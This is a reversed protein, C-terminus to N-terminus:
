PTPLLDRSARAPLGSGSLDVAGAFGNLPSVDAAYSASGGATITQSAPAASITFDPAPTGLTFNCTTLSGPNSVNVDLGWWDLATVANQETRFAFNTGVTQETGGAPTVYISYTHAPVNIVLRFHYRVGGSFPITSLAAYAGGNRADIAGSPNFRTLTAFGAYATQAGQSLAVVANLPSASPTADYEVTFTGTQAASLATNHWGDGASGTVCSTNVVLTVTISHSLGGSAATITLTYGGIPTASGTSVGLTSSGSGGSIPTPNFTGTAGGPLGSVSLSVAGAFGNLPSVSATYGASGGQTIAQSNPTASLTFDPAPPPNVVLTVTATHSLGGSTGTITLTYAGAPTSGSTAVSLTSSGSGGSVSTPNFTGTTGSPLGSVGLDVTGTFGGVVSTTVTYSASGGVSVNQSSPTASITFDSQLGIWGVQAHTLSEWALFYNAGTPRKAAIQQATQPMNMGLRNHFHNYAIEMTPGNGGIPGVNVGSPPPNGNNISNHFEFSDVIRQANEAYLNVGQQFATEATNVSAALGWFTHGFDRSTEQALGDVFTTQNWYTNVNTGCNPPPVPTPGDSPLYMYAPARGRWFSVARNFLSSDENFVSINMLAETIILEWNGNKCPAGNILNPVYQTTLMNQFSAIDSASWGSYTYRIIEAAEPWVSGTWGAQLPANSNIHGGTLTRSWANMISVSNQAYAQNGTIYWLLAQTYAAESDSREDSCGLNPNSGSGCEVTQWPHPTYSLSGHSDASAANFATRWPDVNANVQSKVFDLQARNVLIGPHRFSAPAQAAAQRWGMIIVVLPLALLILASQSRPPSIM